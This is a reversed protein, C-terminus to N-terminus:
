AVQEYVKGERAARYIVTNPTDKWYDFREASVVLVDVAVALGSLANTLRAMEDVQSAVEPEVVLFDLDSEARATGRAYSGFLLVKSGKPAAGLLAQAARNISKWDIITGTTM